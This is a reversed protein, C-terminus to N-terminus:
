CAFACMCVRLFVCDSVGVRKELLTSSPMMKVAHIYGFDCVTGLMKCYILAVLCDMREHQRPSTTLHTPPACQM